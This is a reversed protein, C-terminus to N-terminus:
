VEAPKDALAEFEIATGKKAQLIAAMESTDLMGSQWTACLNLATAVDHDRVFTILEKSGAIALPPKACITKALARAGALLAQADDFLQNAFGLRYAEAASFREGTYALQRVVGEPLLKPLRQLTGLDAMMGINIEQICIFADHTMLRLDCACIMDVGGGICGGQVAAIVPFRARELLNFPEQLWLAKQRLLERSRPTATQLMGDAFVSLDMGATFHKGTSAIILVRVDGRADLERLAAPLETWFARNMSNLADPRCLTLEAIGHELTLTFTSASFNLTTM